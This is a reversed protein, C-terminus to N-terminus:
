SHTFLETTIELKEDLPAKLKEIEEEIKQQVQKISNLEILGKLKESDSERPARIQPAKNPKGIIPIKIKPPPLKVDRKPTIKKIVKM